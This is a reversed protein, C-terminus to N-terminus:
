GGEGYYNYLFSGEDGSYHSSVREEYYEEYDRSQEDCMNKIEEESLPQVKDEPCM